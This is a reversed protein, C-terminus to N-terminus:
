KVCITVNRHGLLHLRILEECWPKLMYYLKTKGLNPYEERLNKIKKIIKQPVTSKRQHKPAKSKPELASITKGGKQFMAKYRFLTRRSIDFAELTANLGYKEYFLIIKYRKLAEQSAMDYRYCYYAFREFGKVWHFLYDTQM